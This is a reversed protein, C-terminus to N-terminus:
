LTCREMRGCRRVAAFRMFFASTPLRYSRLEEGPEMVTHRIDMVKISAHNWLMLHDSMKM